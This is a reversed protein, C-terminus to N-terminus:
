TKGEIRDLSTPGAGDDSSILFGCTPGILTMLTRTWGYESRVLLEGRYVIVYASVVLFDSLNITFILDCGWWLNRGGYSLYSGEM